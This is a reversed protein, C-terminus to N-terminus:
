YIIKYGASVDAFVVVNSRLLCSLLVFLEDERGLSDLCLALLLRLDCRDVFSM